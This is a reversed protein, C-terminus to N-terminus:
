IEKGRKKLLQILQGNDYALNIAAIRPDNNFIQPLLKLQNEIEKKLMDKFSIESNEKGSHYIENM